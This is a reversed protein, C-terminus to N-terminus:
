DAPPPPTQDTPPDLPDVPEPPPLPQTEDIIPPTTLQENQRRLCEDLETGMLGACPDIEQVPPTTTSMPDVPPPITAEADDSPTLTVDDSRQQCATTALVLALAALLPKFPITTAKM